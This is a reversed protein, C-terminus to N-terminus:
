AIPDSNDTEGPETDSADASVAEKGQAEMEGAEQAEAAQQERRKEAYCTECFVEEREDPLFPVMADKGCANCTIAFMPKEDIYKEKLDQYGPARYDEKPDQDDLERFGPSRYEEEPNVNNYEQFGPSRYEDEPKINAHERFAPSRYEGSRPARDNLGPSRYDGRGRRRGGGRIKQHRPASDEFAPSRYIGGGKGKKQKRRADRCSKCRKPDSALGKEEYFQQEGATFVFEKKCAVCILTRDEHTMETYEQISVPYEEPSDSRHQPYVSYDPLISTLCPREGSGNLVINLNILNRKEKHTSAM